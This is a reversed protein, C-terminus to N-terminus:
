LGFRGYRLISLVGRNSLYSPKLRIARIALRSAVGFEGESHCEFASQILSLALEQSRVTSLEQLSAPLNSYVTDLYQFPNQTAPDYAWGRFFEVLSNMDNQLLVPHLSIASSVDDVADQLLEERYERAAARLHAWAYAEPLAKEIESPLHLRRSVNDLVALSATRMRLADRTMQARHIRYASVMQPALAFQCGELSLRLWLDWDECANLSEDFMGVRDIGSTKVLVSGVHCSNGFLWQPLRISDPLPQNMGHPTGDPHHKENGGVVGGCDPTKDAASLLLNLADPFLYDDSDLFLLWPASAMAIGTNRAGSLGKNQQHVVRVRDDLARYEEAVEATNDSSGDNVIVIELDQLTQDLVSQIAQGLYHAQNYAPIIISVSPKM